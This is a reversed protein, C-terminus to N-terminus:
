LHCNHTHKLYGLTQIIDTKHPTRKQCNPALFALRAHMNRWLSSENQRYIALGFIVERAPFM